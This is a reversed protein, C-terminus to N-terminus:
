SSSNLELSWKNLKGVDQGALDIMRLVWDGKMSQGILPALASSPLTSDYTMVLNDQGGGLRSHLIAGRGSPSVLEIKLDGIYTHTIDLSVKM